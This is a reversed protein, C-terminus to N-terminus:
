LSFVFLGFVKDLDFLLFSLRPLILFLSLASFRFFDSSDFVGYNIMYEFYFNIVM